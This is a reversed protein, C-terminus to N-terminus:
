HFCSQVVHRNAYLTSALSNPLPIQSGFRIFFDVPYGAQNVTEGGSLFLNIRDTVDLNKEKRLNQIHRIIDRIIGEQYLEEDIQPDLAVTLSGENIVKLNEKETRQVIIQDATIDLSNTEEGKFDISLTSGDLITRIEGAKLEEIRAAAAKMDKGLIKGLTRFNAKASYVVLDEENDRFVIEKINLEEKIIDAMEFLIVKEEKDRTVLHLAKLPQRIKLNHTNRLSRGLSVARRTLMM